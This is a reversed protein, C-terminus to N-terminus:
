KQWCQVAFLRSITCIGNGEKIRQLSCSGASKRHQRDPGLLYVKIQGPSLHGRIKICEPSRCYPTLLQEEQEGHFSRLSSCLCKRQHIRQPASRNCVSVSWRSVTTNRRPVFGWQLLTSLQNAHHHCCLHSGNLNLHPAARATLSLVWVSRARQSSRRSDEAFQSAQKWCPTRLLVPYDCLPNAPSSSICRRRRDWLVKCGKLSSSHARTIGDSVRGGLEWWLSDHYTPAVPATVSGSM